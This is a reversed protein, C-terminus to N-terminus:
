EIERHSLCELEPRVVQPALVPAGHHRDLGPHLIRDGDRCTSPAERDRELLILVGRNRPRLEVEKGLGPGIEPEIPRAAFRPLDGVGERAPLVLHPGIIHPVLEPAIHDPYGPSRAEGEGDRVLIHLHTDPPIIGALTFGPHFHGCVKKGGCPHVQVHRGLCVALALHDEGQRLLLVLHPRVVEPAWNQDSTNLQSSLVRRILSPMASTLTALM